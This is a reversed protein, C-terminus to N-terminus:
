FFFSKFDIIPSMGPPGTTSFGGELALSAPEIGPQPALVGCTAPCSLRLMM